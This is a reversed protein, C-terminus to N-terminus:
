PTSRAQQHTAPAAPGWFDREIIRYLSATYADAAAHSLHSWEPQELGQLEPYDEFHIGPAGSRALLVDWTTRRPYLRDDHELYPGNSPSRVYLVRVGRAQLTHVAKAAREIQKMATEQVKAPPPDDDSPALDRLWVERMLARYDPDNEVKDWMYTNRDAETVALKRVSMGWTRGPRVPWPQRKLVTDLAFDFDDFALWPEVLRMSLWQGIRQSPSEKKFYKLAGARYGHGGFFVEPAVGVLLRGTFKPDAALDELFILASTGELGLQIPRKGDLKEWVPLELDFFLRSDSIVVTAAGEGQDIRRRQIAWLGFSNAFGPKVGYARWYAEWGGVLLALLLVAGLLIRGWPQAPVPRLPVPQAVGPRDAATVRAYDGRM